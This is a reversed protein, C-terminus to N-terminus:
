PIVLNSTVQLYAKKIDPSSVVITIVHSLYIRMDHEKSTALWPLVGIKDGQQLLRFPKKIMISTSDVTVRGFIEEGSILKVTYVETSNTEYM